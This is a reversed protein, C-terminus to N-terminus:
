NGQKVLAEGEELTVRYKKQCIRSKTLTNTDPNYCHTKKEGTKSDTPRNEKTWNAYEKFSIGEDTAKCNGPNKYTTNTEKNLCYPKPRSPKSANTETRLVGETSGLERYFCVDGMWGLTGVRTRSHLDALTLGKENKKCVAPRKKLHNSCTRDDLKINRPDFDLDTDALRVSLYDLFGTDQKILSRLHQEKYNLWIPDNEPGGGVNDKAYKIIPDHNGLAALYFAMAKEFSKGGDIPLAHLDIGQIDAMKSMKILGQLARAEYYLARPGRRTEGPLSGDPRMNALTIQWQSLEPWFKEADGSFAYLAMRALTLAIFINEHGYLSSIGGGGWGTTIRLGLFDRYLDLRKEMWEIFAAKSQSSTPIAKTALAYANTMDFAIVYFFMMHGSGDLSMDKASMPWKKFELPKFADEEVVKDVWEIINECDSLADNKSGYLCRTGSNVLASRTKFIQDEKQRDAKVEADTKATYSLFGPMRNLPKPLGRPMTICSSHPTITEFDVLIDGPNELVRGIPLQDWNRDPATSEKSEGAVPVCEGKYNGKTGEPCAAWSTYAVTLLLTALFFKSLRKM